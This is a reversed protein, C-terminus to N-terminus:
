AVECDSVNEIAGVEIDIYTNLWHEWVKIGHSLIFNDILVNDKLASSVFGHVVLSGDGMEFCADLDRPSVGYMDYLAFSEIDKYLNFRYVINAFEVRFSCSDGDILEKLSVLKEIGEIVKSDYLM